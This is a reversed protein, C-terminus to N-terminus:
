RVSSAARSASPSSASQDPGISYFGFPAGHGGGGGPCERWQWEVRRQRRKLSRMAAEGEAVAAERDAVVRINGRERRQDGSRCGLGPPSQARERAVAGGDEGFGSDRRERVVPLHGSLEVDDLHGALQHLAAGAIRLDDRQVLVVGGRHERECCEGPRPREARARDIEASVDPDM